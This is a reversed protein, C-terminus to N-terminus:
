GWWTVALPGESRIVPTKTSCPRPPLFRPRADAIVQATFRKAPVDRAEPTPAWYTTVIRFTRQSQYASEFRTWVTTPLVATALWRLPSSGLDSRTFERTMRVELDCYRGAVPRDKVLGRFSSRAAEEHTWRLGQPVNAQRSQVPSRSFLTSDTPDIRMARQPRVVARALPATEIYVGQESDPFNGGNDTGGDCGEAVPSM